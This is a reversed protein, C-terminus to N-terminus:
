ERDTRAASTQRRDDDDNCTKIELRYKKLRVKSLFYRKIGKKNTVIPYERGRRASFDGVSNRKGRVRERERERERSRRRRQM